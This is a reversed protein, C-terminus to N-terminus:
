LPCVSTCTSRDCPDPLSSLCLFCADSLAPSQCEMLCRPVDAGPCSSSRACVTTCDRQCTGALCTQGPQCANDCVGCHLSSSM